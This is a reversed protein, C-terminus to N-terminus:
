CLVEVEGCDVLKVWAETRPVVGLAWEKARPEEKM